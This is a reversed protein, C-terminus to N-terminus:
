IKSLSKRVNRFITASVIRDSCDTLSLWLRVFGFLATSEILFFPRNM